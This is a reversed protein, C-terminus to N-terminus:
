FYKPSEWPRVRKTGKSTRIFKNNQEIHRKSPPIFDIYDRTCIEEVFILRPEEVEIVPIANERYVEYLMEGIKVLPINHWLIVLTGIPIDKDPVSPINMEIVCIPDEKFHYSM